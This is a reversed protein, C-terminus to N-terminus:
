STSGERKHRRADKWTIVNVAALVDFLLQFRLEVAFTVIVMSLWFVYILVITLVPLLVNPLKMVAGAIALILFCIFLLNVILWLLTTPLDDFESNSIHDVFTQVFGFLLFSSFVVTGIRIPICGCCCRDLSTLTESANRNTTWAWM